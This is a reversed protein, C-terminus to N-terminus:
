NRQAAEAASIGGMISAEVQGKSVQRLITIFM